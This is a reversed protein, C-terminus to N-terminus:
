AEGLAPWEKAQLTAASAAAATTAGSHMSHKPLSAWTKNNSKPKTQTSDAQSEPSRKLTTINFRNYPSAPLPKLPGQHRGMSHYDGRAAKIMSATQQVASPGKTSLATQGKITSTPAAQAPVKQHRQIKKLQVPQWTGHAKVDALAAAKAALRRRKKAQTKSTQQDTQM